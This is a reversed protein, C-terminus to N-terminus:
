RVFDHFTKKWIALEREALEFRFIMRGYLLLKFCMHQRGIASEVTNDRAGKAKGLLFYPSTWVVKREEKCQETQDTNM